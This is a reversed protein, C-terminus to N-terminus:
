PVSLGWEVVLSADLWLTQTDDVTGYPDVVIHYRLPFVRASGELGIAWARGVPLELALGFLAGFNM